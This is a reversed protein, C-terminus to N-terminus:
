IEEKSFLFDIEEPTKIRKKIIFHKGACNQASLYLKLYEDRCILNYTLFLPGRGETLDLDGM